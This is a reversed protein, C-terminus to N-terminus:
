VGRTMEVVEKLRETLPNYDRVFKESLSALQQGMTTLAKELEAELNKDITEFNKRLQENTREIESNVKEQIKPITDKILEGYENVQKQTAKGLEETIKKTNESLVTIQAQVEKSINQTGDKFTNALDELKASFTPEVAKMETLVNALSEQSKKIMEYQSQFNRLLQELKEASETYADARNATKAFSESSTKLSEASQKQVLALQDLEEKYQKQWIVLKEVAANLQKFNEGFQENLQTNFDKIVEKLAEILAKSGLESVKNAFDDLSAKLAKSSENQDSRLLKIQNILSSDGDGAISKRLSNISQVVDELSAARPEGTDSQVPAKSFRQRIKILLAGFVGFVSAWFATKVGNLLLPVSATINNANFDLLALAIGTFCGFIGMTTLIEPGHLVAFRDYKFVLFFFTTAVILVIFFVTIPDSMVSQIGAAHSVTPFFILPLAQLTKNMRRDSQLHGSPNHM